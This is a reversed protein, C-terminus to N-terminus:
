FRLLAGIGQLPGLDPYHRLVMVEAGQSLAAEITAERLHELEELPGGDAPCREGPELMLLGCGQCRFGPRDFGPELLLLQVRRENLAQLTDEPGGVARGGTGVGAALRDLAERESRKEDEVVLKALAHRIEADNASSLDVEVREPALSAKVEAALHAELRPVIEVPGGLAARDFRETRWRQNLGEAVRRLHDDTDKEISREYRAQSWGGQDHQGHVYEDFKAQEELSDVPGGLVRGVRRNVLAVLWRRQELFAVLPEVFPSRGIVVRGPVPRPLQVVEFLDDQGSVFVGLAGAGQFPAGPSSLYDDIRHLDARLTVLDDHSLGAASGDLDRAAQDILSRIQASRAPPTAFREPDLDLYLSIIPHGTRHELL